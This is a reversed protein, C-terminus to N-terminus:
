PAVAEKANRKEEMIEEYSRIKLDPAATTKVASVFATTKQRQGNPQGEVPEASAQRKGPRVTALAAAGEANPTQQPQQQQQQQPTPIVAQRPAGPDAATSERATAVIETNGNGNGNSSSSNNGSAAPAVSSKTAATAAAALPGGMGAAKVTAPPGKQAPAAIRAPVASPVTKTTTAATATSAPVAKAERLARQKEQEDHLKALLLQQKQAATLPAKTPPQTPTAVPAGAPANTPTAAPKGEPAKPEKTPQAKAQTVQTAQTAPATATAKKSRKDAMVEEYTKVRFSEDVATSSDLPHTLRTPPMVAPVTHTATGNDSTLRITSASAQTTPALPLPTQEEPASATAAAAPSSSAGTDSEPQPPPPVDTTPPPTSANKDRRHAFPCHPKLCGSPTSEYFCPVRARDRQQPVFAYTNHRKPCDETTCKGFEWADCVETASIAGECHRYPCMSGKMCAASLFFRCDDGTRAM